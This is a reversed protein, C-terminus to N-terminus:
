DEARTLRELDEWCGLPIPNIDSCGSFSPLVGEHPCRRPGETCWIVLTSSGVQHVLDVLDFTRLSETGTPLRQGDKSVTVPMVSLLHQWQSSLYRM